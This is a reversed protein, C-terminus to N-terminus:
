MTSEVQLTNNAANATNVYQPNQSTREWAHFVRTGVEARHWHTLITEVVLQETCLPKRFM